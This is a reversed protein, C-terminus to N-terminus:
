RGVYLLKAMMKENCLSGLRDKFDGADQASWHPETLQADDQSSFPRTNSEWDPCTCFAAPGHKERM